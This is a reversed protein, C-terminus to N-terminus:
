TVVNHSPMKNFVRLIMLSGVNQMGLLDGCLCRFGLKSHDAPVHM